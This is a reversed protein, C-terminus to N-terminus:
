GAIKHRTPPQHLVRDIARTLGKFCVSCGETHLEDTAIPIKLASFFLSLSLHRLNEWLHDSELEDMQNIERLAGRVM